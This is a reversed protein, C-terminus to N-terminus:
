PGLSAMEVNALSSNSEERISARSIITSPGHNSSRYHSNVANVIELDSEEGFTNVAQINTEMILESINMPGNSTNLLMNSMNHANVQNRDQNEWNTSSILEFDKGMINQGKDKRQKNKQM